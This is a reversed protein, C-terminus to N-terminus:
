RAGNQDFASEVVQELSESALQTKSVTELKLACIGSRDPPSPLNPVLMQTVDATTQRALIESPTESLSCRHENRTAEIHLSERPQPTVRELDDSAEGLLKHFM